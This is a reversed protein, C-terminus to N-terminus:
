LKPSITPDNERKGGWDEQMLEVSEIALHPNFPPRRDWIYIASRSFFRMLPVATGGGGGPCSSPSQQGIWMGCLLPAPDCYNRQEPFLVPLKKSRDKKYLYCSYVTALRTKGRKLPWKFM